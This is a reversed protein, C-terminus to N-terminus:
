PWFFLATVAAFLPLLIAGSWAMYGFFSPMAIGREECISKVMFNPANGIYTNAGMFQAGASIAALTVALPGMLREPDGGATNFFMLYTPANDLASSLGGALWFYLANRPQGDPLTLTAILPALAGESGARLIAIAPMIAIFIGAFLIAVELIPAWSFGNAQHLDAHTSKLSILALVLLTADRALNQLEIEAGLVPISVGPEWFACVMVVAIALVLLLLNQKGTIGFAATTSRPPPSERRYARSDILYFLGLLVLSALMTPMFLHTLPWFFSVGQLLGLFLPPNGVPTLAGGINCVLFIFFVFVVSSHRRWANAQILPRILLVPAGATGIVSALATGIALLATNSAPSGTLGGRVRVGGSIVFLALLLVIFPIYQEFLTDRLAALAVAPGAAALLPLLLAASWFAAVKGYHRSWFGPAALPFLAISLLLGAFPLCWAAGLGRGDLGAAEAAWAGGGAGLFLGLALAAVGMIRGSRGM